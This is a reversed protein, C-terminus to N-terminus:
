PTFVRSPLKANVQQLSQCCYSYAQLVVCCSQICSNLCLQLCTDWQLLDVAFFEGVMEDDNYENTVNFKDCAVTPWVCPSYDPTYAPIRWIGVERSKQRCVSVETITFICPIHRATFFACLLSNLRKKHRLIIELILNRLQVSRYVQDAWNLWDSVSVRGWLATSCVHILVYVTRTRSTLIISAAAWIDSDIDASQWSHFYVVPRAV